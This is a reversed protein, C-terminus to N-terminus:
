ANAVIWAAIFLGVGFVAHNALSRIRNRMPTPTKSAAIGAGMAPQMVFWPAVVTALGLAMAPLLRPSQMWGGGFLAVALVAYAVGITYHVAWGLALEGRLAPAKAIAEHSWIGRRWHGVWRGIHAFNLTPIGLSKLCLLWLDMVATAGVGIGIVRPVADVFENM